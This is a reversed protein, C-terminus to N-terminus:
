PCSYAPTNPLQAACPRRISRTSIRWNWVVPGELAFRSVAQEHQPILQIPVWPLSPFPLRCPVSILPYCRMEGRWNPTASKPCRHTQEGRMGVISVLRVYMAKGGTWRETGDLQRVQRPGKNKKNHIGVAYCPSIDSSQQEKSKKGATGIYIMIMFKEKTRM